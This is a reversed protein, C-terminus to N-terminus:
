FRVRTGITAIKVDELSTGNSLDLQHVKYAAYLELFCIPNWVYGVGYM